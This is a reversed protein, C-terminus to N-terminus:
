KTIASHKEKLEHLFNDIVDWTNESNDMLIGHHETHIITLQKNKSGLKEMFENASEISVVPDKDAYIVLSPLKVQELIAEVEQILLRLEYLSTVPTSRYNVTPHEPINEMFPKLGKLSSISDLLKNSGHLLPVLMFSKDVFKLPVAIVAMGLLQIDKEIALKAALVGGTSFGIAVIDECYTQLIKYGRKVSAYWDERNHDRLAYPSTGHGKLRIGLATFGQECIHMGYGHVEAPSALLGHILLIGIGNPKKPHLLFPSPDDSFTELKNIDNYQPRDYYNKEWALLRYEDEFHWEALQQPKIKSYSKLAKVLNQKVEKIPAVENYYVAILNELRISDVDYDTYLKPLFQYHNEHEILLGNTKAVCIFHEFRKNEGTILDSYDNPNLLSRHLNVKHNNQLYKVAIYLSTYFHSKEIKHLEKNICCMILTAALHSLNVTVNAYIDEMYQNRTAAASKKFYAGLLKQKYNKPSSHLKFIDDLSELEPMVLELLYRNWWHWVQYPDVPEGLRVDMDTDKLMINGEILLEETQRLSLGDAFLEVGQKLWNESGRIPYFTINSPVILTPKLATSLLQEMSDLQLEEKWRLLKKHDKQCYANRITAKFAEIGQALVAAGTHHKRREGTIRSLISYNGHKDLVRRDKVMGGEPFIIVKRGRFIQRALLPFLNPHDHPFVGVNRLYKALMTEEKFFEGAAIACSYAGTREYILFQPIFTEFRAFHNFLFIDGDATQDDTHLKMNVGLMKKVSRFVTGTKDYLQTDIDYWNENYSRKAM